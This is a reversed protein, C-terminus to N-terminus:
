KKQRRSALRETALRDNEAARFVAIRAILELPPQEQLPFQVAGKSSQYGRAVFEAQFHEIGSAGPYLGIHHQHVAFHVLNGKRYFTPMQWSIKETADPVAAQIAARIAQLKAQIDAPFSRVYADMSDISPVNMTM